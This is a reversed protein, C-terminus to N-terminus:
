ITMLGLEVKQRISPLLRVQSRRIRLGDGEPVGASMPHCPSVFRCRVRPNSMASPDPFPPSLCPNTTANHYFITRGNDMAEDVQWKHAEHQVTAIIKEIRVAM